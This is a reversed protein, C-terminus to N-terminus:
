RVRPENDDADDDVYNFDEDSMERQEFSDIIAQIQRKALAQDEPSLRELGKFFGAQTLPEQLQLGVALRVALDESAMERGTLRNVARALNLATEKAVGQAGNLIRSFSVPDIDAAAAVAKHKLGAQEVIPRLWAGFSITNGMHFLM